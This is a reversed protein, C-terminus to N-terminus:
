VGYSGLIGLVSAVLIVGVNGLSQGELIKFYCFICAAILLWLAALFKGQQLLYTKCTEWITKSVGGMAEHVPLKKTQRYQALGFLAGIACVLIGLYMLTVGSVGGLAEFRVTDLPPIKLDAESAHLAPTYFLPLATIAAVRAIKSYNMHKPM